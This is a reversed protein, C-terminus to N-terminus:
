IGMNKVIFFTVDDILTQNQRYDQFTKSFLYNVQDPEANNKFSSVLTKIFEREGWNEKKPNQIDPIGDTYLFLSDGVEFDVTVEEYQTSRDQGLRPNILENLPILDKKKIIGDNKKILYPAEHSANAYTMKNNSIDFMAIFFTMMLRGKSVDYISQNLLQMAVGPGVDLNEIISAASKAASTILAAPVGHGTADGIWLYIKENSVCYHWWDGGCESASEYFGSIQLPGIRSQTEPFLTEQVTKATQLESEMRAKEATEDLLRSVEIAMLNFNKALTGVEDTSNVQVRFKFNGQAVNKTAEFLQILSSTLSRSALLSISATISLLIAFFILSKRFLIKVASLAKSKAVSSIVILDGFGVKSLSVLQEVGDNDKLSESSKFAKKSGEASLFSLKLNESVSRGILNEPGFIIKGDGFVLYMSQASKARFMEYLDAQRTVLVFIYEKGSKIDKINEFIFFRDDQFPMRVLRGDKIIENILTPLDKEIGSWMTEAMQPLKELVSERLWAGNENKTLVLMVDISSENKFLSRSFDGFGHNTIFDQFLPKSIMLVSNLQSKVQNAMTGTVNSTSDAVYAVKDKQFVDVALFLYASLTALPIM